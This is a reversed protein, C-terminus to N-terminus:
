RYRPPEVDAMAPDLEIGRDVMQQGERQKGLHQLAFGLRMHAAADDPAAAVARRYLLVAARVDDAETLLALNYLAPAFDGDVSLTETYRVIASRTNGQTQALYGLNYLGYVNDPDLTILSLFTVEAEAFKGGEIQELGTAILADEPSTTQTASDEPTGPEGPADGNSCGGLVAVAVLAAVVYAASRAPGRHRM